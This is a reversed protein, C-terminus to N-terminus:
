GHAQLWDALQTVSDFLGLSPQRTLEHRSHAGYTVGIADCGANAALALDHATDGVMLTQGAAIGTFRMLRELMDPHPKPFGEDACRTYHFHRKLGSHDLARTLAHRPMGTAVALFRADHRLSQLLAAMGPYVAAGGDHRAHHQRYAYIFRTLTADEAGPFLARLADSVGLGIIRTADAHPPVPLGVDQAALRISDAILGTSDVVTGDWDFVILRYRM